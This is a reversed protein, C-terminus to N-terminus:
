ARPANPDANAGATAGGAGSAPPSSPRGAAADRADSASPATAQAATNLASTSAKLTADSQQQSPKAADNIQQSTSGMLGTADRMSMGGGGGAPATM